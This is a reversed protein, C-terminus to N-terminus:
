IKIFHPTFGGQYTGPVPIMQDGTQDVYPQKAMFQYWKHKISPRVKEPDVLIHYGGRTKLFEVGENDFFQSISQIVFMENQPSDTWDLDFDVYCTRSKCRQIESLVEQHPNMNTNQNDISKILKIASELTAKYLNRPNLTIYLALAEQPIIVDRQMYAGVPCELQQIKNFMRTKDTVFRKLQAKDSKIHAIGNKGEADKTYKSRAFLCMYYKENEKLDPLWEIFDKLLKEDTIVQYNM